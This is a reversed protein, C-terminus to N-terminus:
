LMNVLVSNIHTSLTQASLMVPLDPHSEKIISTRFAFLPYTKIYSPASTHFHPIGNSSFDSYTMNVNDDEFPALMKAVFGDAFKCGRIDTVIVIDYEPQLYYTHLKNVDVFDNQVYTVRDLNLLEQISDDKIICYDLLLVDTEEERIDALIQPLSDYTKFPKILLTKM